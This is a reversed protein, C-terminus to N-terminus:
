GLLNKLEALHKSATMGKDQSVLKESIIFSGGVALISPHNLIDRCNDASVGGTPLFKMKPFPGSLAKIADLGGYVDAPFFKVAKLGLKMALIIETPTVAGPIVLVNEKQCFRVVEEDIGPMVVFKAGNNVADKATTLDCVTGAGVILRGSQALQNIAKSALDSRYTVEIFHFGNQLLSEEVDTLVELNTATYLPLLKESSLQELLTDTNM